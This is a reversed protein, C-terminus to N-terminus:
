ITSELEKGSARVVYERLSDAETERASALLLCVRNSCAVSRKMSSQSKQSRSPCALGQAQLLDQSQWAQYEQCYQRVLLPESNSSMSCDPGQCEPLM